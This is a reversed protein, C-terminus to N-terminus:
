IKMEGALSKFMALANKFGKRQAILNFMAKENGAKQFSKPQRYSRYKRHYEAFAHYFIAKPRPSNCAAMTFSLVFDTVPGEFVPAYIHNTNFVKRFENYEETLVRDSLMDPHSDGIRSCQMAMQRNYGVLADGESGTFINGGSPLYRDMYQLAFITEVKVERVRGYMEKCAKIAKYVDAEITPWDSPIEIFEHEFGLKSQLLEVAKQDVSPYGKFYFTFAKFPIGAKILAYLVTVSDMGGSLLLYNPEGNSALEKVRHVFLDALHRCDAETYRNKM